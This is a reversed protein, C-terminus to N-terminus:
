YPAALRHAPSNWTTRDQAEQKWDHGAMEEVCADDGQLDASHDSRVRPFFDKAHSAWQNDALRAVDERM